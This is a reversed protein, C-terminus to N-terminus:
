SSAGSKPSSVFVEHGKLTVGGSDELLVLKGDVVQSLDDALPVGGAAKIAAVTQHGRHISVSNGNITITVNPGTEPNPKDGGKADEPKVTAETSMPVQREGHDFRGDSFIRRKCFSM